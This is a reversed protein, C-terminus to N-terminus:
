FDALKDWDYYIGSYPIDNVTMNYHECVAFMFMKRPLMFKMKLGLNVGM